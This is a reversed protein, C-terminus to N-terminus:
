RRLVHLRLYHVPWLGGRCRRRVQRGTYVDLTGRSRAWRLHLWPRWMGLLMSRRMRLDLLSGRHRLLMPGRLRLLLLM